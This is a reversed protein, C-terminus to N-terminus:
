KAFATLFRDRFSSMPSVPAQANPLLGEQWNMASFRDLVKKDRAVVTIPVDRNPSNGTAIPAPQHDGLFVLVLKDDGYKEVYSILAEFSYEISRRYETRVNKPDKWVDGQSKGEAEITNYVTGNGLENWGVMKPIPAWPAHSSLLPMEVMLPGRGPTSHELKEFQELTYQDPMTSWGFRPGAYGLDKSTYVKDYGFFKAEPWKRVVGPVVAVSRWGARQFARNLTLRDTAVLQKYRQQNNVWLGSLLTSHALWSGGGATSSTLFATRSQFGAKKLRQNGAAALARVEPTETATRGYSEIFTLMFDKGRLGTLLQDGPTDRFADVRSAAAFARDDNLSARIKPIRKAALKVTGMGAVPVGPVLQAGVAACAIWATAAVGVGATAATHHRVMLRMLRLVSLTTVVPVAVILVVVLVIVGIGGVDGFTSTIFEVGAGVFTWDMVPDFPRALTEHFGMDLIKLIVLLGLAVGVLAAVIQRPRDRLIIALGAVFVAEGPIRVFSGLDLGGITTPM